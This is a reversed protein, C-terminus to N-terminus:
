QLAVQLLSMAPRVVKGKVSRVRMLCSNQTVGKGSNCASSAKSCCRTFSRARRLSLSLFSRM